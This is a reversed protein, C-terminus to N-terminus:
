WNGIYKNNLSEPNEGNFHFCLKELIKFNSVQLVLDVQSFVLYLM